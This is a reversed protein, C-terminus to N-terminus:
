YSHPLYRHLWPADYASSTTFQPSGTSQQGVFAPNHYNNGRFQGDSQHVLWGNVKMKEPIPELRGQSMFHNFICGYYKSFVLNMAAYLATQKCEGDTHTHTNSPVWSCINSQTLRRAGFVPSISPGAELASGTAHASSICGSVSVQRPGGPSAVTQSIGLSLGQYVHRSSSVCGLM